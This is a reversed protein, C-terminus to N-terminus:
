LPVTPSSVKRKALWDASMNCERKVGILSVALQKSMLERIEDLIPLFLRSEADDFSKLLEGCDVNCIVERFGWDWVLQMGLKLAWAESMLANGVTPFAHFGHVWQGQADWVLGGAGMCQAQLRFSGDVCLNIKGSSPLVWRRCMWSGDTAVIRNNM